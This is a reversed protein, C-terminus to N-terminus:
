IEGLNSQLGVIYSSAWPLNEMERLRSEIRCVLERVPNKVSEDRRSSHDDDETDQVQYPFTRNEAM